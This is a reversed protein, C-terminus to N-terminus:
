VNFFAFLQETHVAEALGHGIGTDGGTIFITNETLKM